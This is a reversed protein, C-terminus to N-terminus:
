YRAFYHYEVDDDLIIFSWVNEEELESGAPLTITDSGNIQVRMATGNLAFEFKNAKTVNNGLQNMYDKVLDTDAVSTDWELESGDYKFVKSM